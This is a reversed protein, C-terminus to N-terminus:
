IWRKFASILVFLPFGVMWVMCMYDQLTYLLNERDTMPTLYSPEHSPTGEYHNYYIVSDLKSDPPIFWLYDSLEAVLRRGM